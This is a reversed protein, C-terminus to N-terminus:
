NDKLFAKIGIEAQRQSSVWKINKDRRFWTLQRKAFRRSDRKILEIAEEKTIEGELHKVIQRYGIGSLAPAGKGYKKLIKSVEKILGRKIMEDVRQNIKKYLKERETKIGLLLINGPLKLKKPIGKSLNGVKAVGKTFIELARIVRRKNKLDVNDETDPNLKLLRSILKELPENELKRRLKYDPPIKPIKYDYVVSDIYLSSGGVLFPIKDRKRIEEIKQNALKQYEAISFNDNPKLIDILHHRIGEVIYDTPQQSNTTPKPKATGIDMGKYINRSDANIIEGDFKKALNIGLETKGSATPGLIVILPLKNTIKEM